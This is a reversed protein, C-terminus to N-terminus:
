GSRRGCRRSSRRKRIGRSMLLVRVPVCFGLSLSLGQQAVAQHQRQQGGRTHGGQEGEEEAAVQRAAHAPWLPYVHLLTHSVRLHPHHALPYQFVHLLTDSVHLLPHHALGRCQGHVDDAPLRGGAPPPLDLYQTRAGQGKDHIYKVDMVRAM